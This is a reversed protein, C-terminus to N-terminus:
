FFLMKKNDRTYNNKVKYKYQGGKGSIKRIVDGKQGGKRFSVGRKDHEHTAASQQTADTVCM